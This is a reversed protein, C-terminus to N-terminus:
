HYQEEVGCVLNDTRVGGGLTCSGVDQLDARVQMWVSRLGSRSVKEPSRWEKGRRVESSNGSDLSFTPWTGKGDGGAGGYVCLWVVGSGHFPTHAPVPQWM